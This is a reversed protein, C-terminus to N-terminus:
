SLQGYAQKIIKVEVGDVGIVILLRCKSNFCKMNGYCNFTQLGVLENTRLYSSKRSRRVSSIKAYDPGSIPGLLGVFIVNEGMNGCRDTVWM